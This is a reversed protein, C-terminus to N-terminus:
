DVNEIRLFLLLTRRFRVPPKIHRQSRRYLIDEKGVSTPNEVENKGSHDQLLQKPVVKFHSSNRTVTDSGNSATIMSGKMEQVLFPKPNYPTSFKNQKHQKMLVVEGTTNKREQANGNQDAYIKM